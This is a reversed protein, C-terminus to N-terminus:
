PNNKICRAPLLEYDDNPLMRINNAWCDFVQKWPFDDYQDSTWYKGYQGKAAFHLIPNYYGSPLLNFGYLGNGNGNFSWKENSKLNLGADYGQYGYSQWITDEIRYYSDAAGKLIAWDMLNPVHWGEPCIGQGASLFIYNMLESFSYLGGYLICTDENNDYCYKEVMGNDSMGVGGPIMVGVNLNEKLWCQSFIQITNYVKGEYEVTPMGPCPIKTAFQFTYTQSVDPSDLLGSELTDSYGIMLLEDGANYPLESKLVLTTDSWFLITNCGQTRNIVKISDLQIYSTNNLATFTLTLPAVYVEDRICRVSYGSGMLEIDGLINSVYSNFSRYYAWYQNSSTSSWWWGERGFAIIDGVYNDRTGSPFGTFGYLDTGNGNDEWRSVSKLNLGADTGYGYIMEDDWHYEGIGYYSDVAGSLIKFEENSPVHWGSPCIGTAAELTAYQMMESWSYLGGYVECSDENNYLCYKEVVGNNEMDQTVPILTGVNLNEKMWCQSFIQITNYVQGEYVVTPMGPCPINTAFQFIYNKSTEPSDPMGSQLTDTYGVYLLTDGISFLFSQVTEKAKLQSFSPKSGQYELSCARKTSLDTQIIKISSNCGKWQATFFYLSGDGPMFSFSHLGQDLLRESQIIVRGLVDTVTMSVNDKSPVYLNITTQHAVPNPYNQFVQFGEITEHPDPMGVQYDLVLVTDPFYLVTDGVQTRNMVKISDLQVRTTNNVASFTLTLSPRQGSIESLASVLFILTIFRRM